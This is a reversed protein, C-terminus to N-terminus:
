WVLFYVPKYVPGFPFRYNRTQEGRNRVLRLMEITDQWTRTESQTEVIQCVERDRCPGRLAGNCPLTVSGECEVECEAHFEDTATLCFWLCDFGEALEFLSHVIPVGVFSPVGAERLKAAMGFVEENAKMIVSRNEGLKPRRPFLACLGASRDTNGFRSNSNGERTRWFFFPVTKSFQTRLISQFRPVLYFEATHESIFSPRKPNM